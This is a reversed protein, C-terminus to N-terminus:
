IEKPINEVRFGDFCVIKYTNVYLVIWQTGISKFEDLNMVYAKNKIKPLDNRCYVSNCKPKNQYYKQIQPNASPHPLM